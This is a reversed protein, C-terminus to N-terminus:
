ISTSKSQDRSHERRLPHFFHTPQLRQNPRRLAVYGAILLWATAGTVLWGLLSLLRKTSRNFEEQARDAEIGSKILRAAREPPLTGSKLDELIAAQKAYHEQTATPIATSAVLSGIGIVLLLLAPMLIVVGYNYRDALLQSRGPALGLHVRGRKHLFVFVLFLPLLTLVLGFILGGFKPLVKAEELYLGLAVMVLALTMGSIVAKSAEVFALAASCHPCRFLYPNWRSFLFLPALDKTCAPCKTSM